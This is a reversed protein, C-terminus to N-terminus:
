ADEDVDEEVLEMENGWPDTPNGLIAVKESVAFKYAPIEPSQFYRKAKRRTEKANFRMAKHPYPGLRAHLGKLMESLETDSLVSTYNRDVELGVLRAASRWPKRHQVSHDLIAHCMEHLVTGLMDVADDDGFRADIFMQRSGVTCVESCYCVGLTNKTPPMIAIAWKEPMQLGTKEEVYPILALVAEALWQERLEYGNATQATGNRRRSTYEISM